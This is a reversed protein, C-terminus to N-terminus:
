LASMPCSSPWPIKFVPLTTATLGSLVSSPKHRMKFYTEEQFVFYFFPRVKSETRTRMSTVRAKLPIGQVKFVLLDGVQINGFDAVTDLVSVPVEGKVLLQQPQSGFLTKGELM